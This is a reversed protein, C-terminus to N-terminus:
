GASFVHSAAFSAFVFYVPIEMISRRGLRYFVGSWWRVCSSTPNASAPAEWPDRITGDQTERSEWGGCNGGRKFRTQPV